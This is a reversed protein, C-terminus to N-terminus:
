KQNMRELILKGLMEYNIEAAHMEEARKPTEMPDYHDVRVMLEYLDLLEENSLNKVEELKENM